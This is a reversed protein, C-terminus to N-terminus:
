RCRALSWVYVWMVLTIAGRAKGDLDHTVFEVGEQVTGVREGARVTVRGDEAKGASKV